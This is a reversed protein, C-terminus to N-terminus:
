RGPTPKEEAKKERDRLKKEAEVDKMSVYNLAGREGGAFVRIEVEACKLVKMQTDMGPYDQWQGIAPLNSNEIVKKVFDDVHTWQPGNYGITLNYAHGDFFTFSLRSVGPFKDKSQYKPPFVTLGSVGFEGPPRALSTRLEPDDKSGPIAELIETSTMGLKLGNIVPAASATMTCAPKEQDVKTPQDVTQAPATNANPAPPAASKSASCAISIVILLAAVAILFKMESHHWPLAKRVVPLGPLM